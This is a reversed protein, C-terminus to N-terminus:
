DSEDSATQRTRVVVGVVCAMDSRLRALSSPASLLCGQCVSSPPRTSVGCTVSVYSASSVSVILLLEM